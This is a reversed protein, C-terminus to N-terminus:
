AVKLILLTLDDQLAGKQSERIETAIAEAMEQASKDRHASLLAVLGQVGLM